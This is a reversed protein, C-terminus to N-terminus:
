IVASSLIMISTPAEVPPNVSQKNCLPARFIQQISTPYPCSAHDKRFSGLTIRRSLVLIRYRLSFSFSRPSFPLSCPISYRMSLLTSVPIDRDTIMGMGGKSIDIMKADIDQGQMVFRASPPENVRYVVTCNMRLRKSSRRENGTYVSAM